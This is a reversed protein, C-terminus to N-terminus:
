IQLVKLSSLKQWTILVLQQFSNYTLNTKKTESIHMSKWDSYNQKLTLSTKFYMWKWFVKTKDIYNRTDEPKFHRSNQCKYLWSDIHCSLPWIHFYNLKQIPLMTTNIICRSVNYIALKCNSASVLVVIFQLVM